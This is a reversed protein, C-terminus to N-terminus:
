EFNKLTMNDKVEEHSILLYKWPKGYNKASHESAYSCWAQAAKKKATVEDSNIQNKAKTEIMYITDNTEAVFDPVYESNETGNQYYIQFQGQAPKFWKNSEQELIVSFRRETDSDFKVIQYLCKSFGNFIIQGIKSKDYNLTRYNVPKTDADATFAIEKLATFGKTIKVFFDSVNDKRHIQMEGYIFTALQRQHYLIVNRVDEECKLYSKIHAILQSCLDYLIDSHEDYSIDEFEMLIQILYDELRIDTEETKKRSLIEQTSDNLRQILLDREVPKYKISDCDLTFQSYGINSSRNPILVIRPIDITGAIMAHVTEEAIKQYDIEEDINPLEDQTLIYNQKAENLLSSLTERKLLFESSPINEYNRITDMVVQSFKQQAKNNYLPQVDNGTKETDDTHSGVKKNINPSSVVTRTKKSASENDLYVKQLRFPSNESNAEDVIDQFRDHAIINLRDVASVGTKKGYPLRLGRGISQEVLTRAKAARLPIITYLNTVDWGEKLMNVHIVIETPEDSKEVSLLREVNEEKEEGSQSSDVQIVKGKYAGDFFDASEMRAKLEAAHSTDRAIVLVFPKVIQRENQRAYTELEVKIDEHVRIGDELKIRELQEANFQSPNFNKQTVVAPIKIFGDEMARALPYEYIVNNFNVPGKASEVFPTATLELGLVPKLENIAKLGASARYRHSEDMLLVLDPLAALYEFYSQGVYESLRKIRPVKGGRVESNIKSINFINVHIEDFLSNDKISIGSDYNDGTIILPPNQAFEAIGKFVYKSTNPTFDEILKKYITLNPALVFFNHMGNNLHLYTIFAGMLRTKGVGTAIAFCLSPFEREFDTVSSYESKIVSLSNFLNQDKAPPAIENIRALIELSDRLPQRLSLRGAISNVLKDSM